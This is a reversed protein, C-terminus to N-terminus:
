GIEARLREAMARSAKGRHSISNKQEKTMQATTM